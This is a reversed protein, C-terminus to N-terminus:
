LVRETMCSYMARAIILTQVLRLCVIYASKTLSSLSKQNAHYLNLVLGRALPVPYGGVRAKSLLLGSETTCCNHTLSLSILVSSFLFSYPLFFQREPARLGYCHVQVGLRRYLVVWQLTCLASAHKFGRRRTSEFRVCRLFLALLQLRVSGSESTFGYAYFGEAMLDQSTRHM